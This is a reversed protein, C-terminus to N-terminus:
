RRARDRQRRRHSQVRRRSDGRHRRRAAGQGDDQIRAVAITSRTSPAPAFWALPNYGWYNALGTTSSSSSRIRVGAGAAVGRRHRRAAEPARDSRSPRARSVHRAAREPVHPHLKRSAKSTCNTFSRTAGRCPRRVIMVGISHAEIVRAKYTYPASDATDPRESTADEIARCHTSEVHVQRGSRARVSRAAAQKRQLAPRAGSRLSRPRSTRLGAGPVGHPAPLFGHWINDTREPLAIGVCSASAARM